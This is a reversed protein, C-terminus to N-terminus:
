SRIIVYIAPNGASKPFYELILLIISAIVFLIRLV